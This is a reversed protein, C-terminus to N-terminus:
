GILYGCFNNHYNAAGLMTGNSCTITVYQSASLSLMTSGSASEFQNHTRILDVSHPSKQINQFIHDEDKLFM